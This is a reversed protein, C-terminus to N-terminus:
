EAIEEGPNATHVIVVDFVVDRVRRLAIDLSFTREFSFRADHALMDRIEPTDLTGQEVLLGHIVFSKVRSHQPGSIM